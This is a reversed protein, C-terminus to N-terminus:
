NDQNDGVPRWQPRGPIGEGQRPPMGGDKSRLAFVFIPTLFTFLISLVLLVVADAPVCSLYLDYCCMYTLVTKAVALVTRAAFACFLIQFCIANDPTLFITDNQLANVIGGAILIVTCVFMVASLVLCLIAEWLLIKRRNKNEARAIYRYQDSVCGLVWRNLVPIWAMWSKHIGRRRALSYLGISYLLYRILGWLGGFAFLASVIRTIIEPGYITSYYWVQNM